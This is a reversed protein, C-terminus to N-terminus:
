EEEERGTLAKWCELMEDSTWGWARAMAAVAAVHERGGVKFREIRPYKKPPRRVDLAGEILRNITIGRGTAIRELRRYTDDAFYVPVSM